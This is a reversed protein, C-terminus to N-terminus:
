SQIEGLARKMWIKVSKEKADPFKDLVKAVLKNSYKKMLEKPTYDSGKKQYLQETLSYTLDKKTGKFIGHKNREKKVRKKLPIDARKLSKTKVQINEDEDLNSFQRHKRVPNDDEYGEEGLKADMWIDFDELLERNKKEEYHKIFFGSLGGHDSEVVDMPDMGRMICAAKLDPYQMKAMAKHARQSTTLLSKAM